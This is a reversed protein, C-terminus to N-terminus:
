EGEGASTIQEFRCRQPNSRIIRIDNSSYAVPGWLEVGLSYVTM